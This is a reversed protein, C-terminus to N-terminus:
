GSEAREAIIGASQEELVQQISRSRQQAVSHLLVLPIAATLGLVTTVLAQSIGGAMLKPDGTGFLTIAQFTVIMGTVTGLLGLLPAVSSLLKIFNIGRELSPLEKLIADDLKLELTEVDAAKNSHYAALVRGLPNSEKPNDIDKAQSRVARSVSTLRFIREASLLLGVALLGIIIYGVIGGQNIRETLGPTQILLGLIAGRSPDIAGKVIDGPDGDVVNDGLDLFRAQPQRGLVRFREDDPLYGLFNGRRDYATWPGVRVVDEESFSGDVDVITGTFHKVEGQAKMEEILHFWLLELQDNSPLKQSKALETLTTHRGTLEGSIISEKIQAGMESATGRVVGFLEGFAGLREAKLDELESLKVDNDDFTKELVIARDEQIKLDALTKTLVRQQTDKEAVFKAIRQRDQESDFFAEEQVKLILETLSTVEIPIEEEESDQARVSTTFVMLTLVFLSVVVNRIISNIDLYNKM